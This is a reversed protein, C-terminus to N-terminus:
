YSLINVSCMIFINIASRTCFMYITEYEGRLEHQRSIKMKKERRREKEEERMEMKMEM